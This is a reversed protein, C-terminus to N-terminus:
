PDWSPDDTQVGLCLLESAKLSCGGSTGSSLAKRLFCLFRRKGPDAIQAVSAEADQSCVQYECTFCFDAPENRSCDIWHCMKFQQLVGEQASRPFFRFSNTFVEGCPPKLPGLLGSPLLVTRDTASVRRHRWPRSCAPGTDVAAQGAAGGRLACVCVM